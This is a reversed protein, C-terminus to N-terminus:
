STYPLIMGGDRRRMSRKLFTVSFERTCRSMFSVICVGHVLSYEICTRVQMEFHLSFISDNGFERDEKDRRWSPVSSHFM